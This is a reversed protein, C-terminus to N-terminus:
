VEKALIVCMFFRVLDLLYFRVYSINWADDGVAPQKRNLLKVGALNPCM